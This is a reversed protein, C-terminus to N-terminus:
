KFACPTCPAVTLLLEKTAVGNKDDSVTVTVHVKGDVNPAKWTVQTGTGTINGGDFSWNYSLTDNDADEAQCTINYLQEKGVLYDNARKKLYKHNATVVLDQIVPAHNGTVTITTSATGSKGNDETVEARITYTGSSNPAVWDISQGEGQISGGDDSWEYTFNGTSNGTVNPVICKINTHEGLSLESKSAELTASVGQSACGGAIISIISLFILAQYKLSKLKM